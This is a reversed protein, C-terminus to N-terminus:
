EKNEKQVKKTQVPLKDFSGKVTVRQAKDYSETTFEFTGSCKSGTETLNLSGSTHLGIIENSSFTAAVSSIRGRAGYAKEYPEIPYTGVKIRGPLVLIVTRPASDANEQSAMNLSLDGGPSRDMYAEGEIKLQVSGTVEVQYHGTTVSEQTETQPQARLSSSFLCMLIAALFLITTKYM